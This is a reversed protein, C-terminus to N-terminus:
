DDKAKEVSVLEVTFILTSNPPIKPPVGKEGYGLHPPITIKRKGQPQMGMVGQDFGPIVEGHGVTFVFPENRDYSSDVVDGNQLQLTYNVTVKDGYNVSPGDGIKIDEYKIMSAALLPTALLAVLTLVLCLKKM